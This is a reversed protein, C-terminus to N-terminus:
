NGIGRKGIVKAKWEVSALAAIVTNPRPVFHVGSDKCNNNNLTKM